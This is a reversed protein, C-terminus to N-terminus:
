FLKLWEGYPLMRCPHNLQNGDAAVGSSSSKIKQGSAPRWLEDCLLMTIHRYM